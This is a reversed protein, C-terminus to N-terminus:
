IVKAACTRCLVTSCCPMRVPNKMRHIPVDPATYPCGLEM